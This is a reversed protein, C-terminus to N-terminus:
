KDERAFDEKKYTKKISMTLFGENLSHVLKQKAFV